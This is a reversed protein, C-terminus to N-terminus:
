EWLMGLSMTSLDQLNKGKPLVVAGDGGALGDTQCIVEM